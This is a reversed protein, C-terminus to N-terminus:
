SNDESIVLEFSANNRMKRHGKSSLDNQGVKAFNSLIMEASREAFDHNKSIEVFKAIQHAM